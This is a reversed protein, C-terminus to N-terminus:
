NSEKLKDLQRFLKLNKQFIEKEVASLHFFAEETEDKPFGLVDLLITIIAKINKISQAQTLTKDNLLAIYMASLIIPDEEHLSIFRQIFVEIIRQLDTEHIDEVLMTLMRVFPERSEIVDDLQIVIPNNQHAKVSSFWGLFLM